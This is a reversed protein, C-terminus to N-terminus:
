GPPPMGGGGMRMMAQQFDAMFAQLLAEPTAIEGSEVRGALSDIVEGMPGAIRAAMQRAQPPLADLNMSAKWEGSQKIFSLPMPLGPRNATARDGNVTIQFDRASLGGFPDLSGGLAAGMPSSALIEAFSKNFKAKCARDLRAQKVTVASTAALFEREEPTNAAYLGMVANADGAATAAIIRDLLTAVQAADDGAPAATGGSALAPPPEADPAPTAAGPLLSGLDVTEGALWKNITDLAEGVRTLRDKADGKASAGEYGAKASEYANKASELAAKEAERVKAAEDAYAAADPFAPKASAISELFVGFQRLGVARTWHLTGLGQQLDAAALRSAGASDQQAKKASGIGTNFAQVAADNAKVLPGERFERLENLKKKLGDAASEAAARAEAASARASAERAMLSQKESELGAALSEVKSIGVAAEEAQPKLLDAEARVREARSRLGDGERKQRNAEEVLPKGATATTAQAQALIEAYRVQFSKAQELLGDAEATLAAIKADLESKARKQAAIEEAIKAASTRLETVRETASFSGASEAIISRDVFERLHARLVTIRNMAEREAAFAANAQSEGLGSQARALILSAAANDGARGSDAVPQVAARISEYAEQRMAEPASAAAGGSSARLERSSQKVAQSTPDDGGCGTLVLAAALGATMVLARGTMARMTM